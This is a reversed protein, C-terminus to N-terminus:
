DAPKPPAQMLLRNVLAPPLAGIARTVAYLRRPYAIRIKGAAIGELARRAAQQPTMVLPMPFPNNATMATRIFGPCLAHVRVGRRRETADRGEAWARAAAKSACYAPATPGIIFSAISAVVAVHGRWGDAGPAQAAMVDLAPLATNLVGTVNTDFMARVREDREIAEGTGAAVGANALVLDLRGAGRVWGEMAPANRVDVVQTTVTAGKARCQAAIAELEAERRAGLHLTAGPVALELAFAAGLGASAGTILAHLFPM